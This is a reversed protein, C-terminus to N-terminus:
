KVPAETKCLLVWHQQLQQLHGLQHICAHTIPVIVIGKIESGKDCLQCQQMCVQLDTTAMREDGYMIIM